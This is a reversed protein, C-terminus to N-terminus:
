NISSSLRKLRKHLPLNQHQLSGSDAETHPTGHVGKMVAVFIVNYYINHHAFAPEHYTDLDLTM